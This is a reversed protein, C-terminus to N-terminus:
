LTVKRHSVRKLRRNRNSNVVEKAVSRLARTLKVGTIIYFVVCALGIIIYCVGMVLLFVQLDYRLGRLISATLELALIVAFICWFPIRLKDLFSNIKMSTKKILEHRNTQNMLVGRLDRLQSYHM